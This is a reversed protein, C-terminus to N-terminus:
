LVLSWVCWLDAIEVEVEIEVIVVEVVDDTMIPTARGMSSSVPM